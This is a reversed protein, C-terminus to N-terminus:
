NENKIEEKRSLVKVKIEEWETDKRPWEGPIGLTVVAKTGDKAEILTSHVHECGSLEGISQLLRINRLIAYPQKYVKKVRLKVSGIGLSDKTKEYRVEEKEVWFPLMRSLTDLMGSRMDMKDEQRLTYYSTQSCSKVGGHSVIFSILDKWGTNKKM